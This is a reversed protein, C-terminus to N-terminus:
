GKAEGGRGMVLRYGCLRVGWLPLSLSAFYSLLPSCTIGVVLLVEDLRVNGGLNNLAVLFYLTLLVLCGMVLVGLIGFGWIPNRSLGLAAPWVTVVSLVLAGFACGGCMLWFWVPDGARSHFLMRAWQLSGLLVAALTTLTLMSGISYQRSFVAPPASVHRIHWGFILRLFWLPAAAVAVLSPVLLLPMLDESIKWFRISEDEQMERTWVGALVAGSLV